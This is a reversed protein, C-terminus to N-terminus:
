NRRERPTTAAVTRAADIALVEIAESRLKTGVTKPDGIVSRAVEAACSACGIWDGLTTLNDPGLPAGCDCYFKSEIIM